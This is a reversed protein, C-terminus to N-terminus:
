GLLERLPQWYNEYWGKSLHDAQGVPFGTHDFVIRSGDSEDRLEFRAVSYVGPDWSGVRWAQVILQDAILEVFRGQIYGGFVSFAGGPHPNIQAPKRAVAKSKVAASFGMLRDFQGADTLAQYIRHRQAHFTPEQHITEAAHSVQDASEQDDAFSNSNACFGVSLTSALLLQRRTLVLRAQPLANLPTM